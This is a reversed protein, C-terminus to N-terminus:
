RLRAFSSVDHARRAAIDRAMLSKEQKITADVEHARDEAEYVVQQVGAAGPSIRSEIGVADEVVKAGQEVTAALEGVNEAM